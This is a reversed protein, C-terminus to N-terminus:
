FMLCIVKVTIALLLSILCASIAVGFATGVYYGVNKIKKENDNM